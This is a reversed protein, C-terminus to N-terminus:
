LNRYRELLARFDERERLPAAWNQEFLGLMYETETMDAAEMPKDVTSKTYGEIIGTTFTCEEPLGDYRHIDRLCIEAAKMAEDLLGACACDVCEHYYQHATYFCLTGFDDGCFAEYMAITRRYLERKKEIPEVWYLYFNIKQVIALLADM